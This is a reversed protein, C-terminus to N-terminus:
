GEVENEASSRLRNLIRQSHALWTYKCEAEIRANRGLQNRLEPSAACLALAKALADVDGPPAMLATKGTELVQGIQELDSAVIARGMAMYEFLKTPSGFFRSADPNPVHPSALIDCAALHSAGESQAVTGAFVVRDLCDASALCSRTAPMSAGDGVLLLRVNNRLEPHNQLLRVFAQALIEAGHWPGFTGVFGIVIEQTGINFKQRIVSGDIGPRYIDTDVGNPNVLIRDASYGRGVLEDKSADAVAVILDAGRLNAEEVAQFVGEFRLPKGAWNRAIWLASGNYECVYPINLLKRLAPGAYNGVSYRGYIFGPIKRNHSRWWSVVDDTTKLAPFMPINRGAGYRPTLEHFDEDPQVLPLMDTSAVTLSPLLKRFSNIVGATHAVSGGSVLDFNHDMRLYLGGRTLDACKRNAGLSALHLAQRRHRAYLWPMALSDRMLGAAAKRVGRAPRTNGRGDKWIGARGSLALALDAMDGYADASLRGVDIQVTSPLQDFASKDRLRMKLLETPSLSSM